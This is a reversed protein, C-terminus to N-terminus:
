SSSWCYRLITRINGTGGNAIYSAIRSFACVETSDSDHSGRVKAEIELLAEDDSCAKLGLVIILVLGPPLSARHAEVRVANLRPRLIVLMVLRQRVGRRILECRCTTIGIKGGLNLWSFRTLSTVALLPWALVHAHDISRAHSRLRARSRM